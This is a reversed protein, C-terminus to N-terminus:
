ISFISTQDSDHKALNDRFWCVTKADPIPDEIGLGLFEMFSIRDHVQFELEDDSIAYMQQLILLKFMVIVDTSQRGAHGKTERGYITELISRFHEWNINENLWKLMPKKQNLKKWRKQENWFGKKGM